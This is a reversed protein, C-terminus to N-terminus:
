LLNGRDMLSRSGKIIQLIISSYDLVRKGVIYPKLTGRINGIGERM